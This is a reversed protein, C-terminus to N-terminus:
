RVLQGRSQEPAKRTRPEQYHCALFRRGGGEIPERGATGGWARRADRADHAPHLGCCGIHSVPGPKPQPREQASEWTLPKHRKHFQLEAM